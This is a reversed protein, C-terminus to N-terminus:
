FFERNLMVRGFRAEDRHMKRRQRNTLGSRPMTLAERLADADERLMVTVRHRYLELALAAKEPNAKAWAERQERTM